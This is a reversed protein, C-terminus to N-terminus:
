KDAVFKKRLATFLDDLAINGGCLVIGVRKHGLKQFEESLAVAVGTGASMEIALKM